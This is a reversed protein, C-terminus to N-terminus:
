GFQEKMKADIDDWGYVSTPSGAKRLQVHPWDKISRFYGGSMLGMKMAEEGWIRYGNVGNIKQKTSWNAAGDVLWFADVAEGFQHWSQGPLANTVHRGHQPGVSDLVDALFYAGKSRLFDIKSNIEWTSRSQRWLKAQKHPTRVTFYVRMSVGRNECKQLLEEVKERFEPVLLGMDRSM